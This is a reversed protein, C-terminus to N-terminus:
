NGERASVFPTPEVVQWRGHKLRVGLVIPGEGMWGRLNLALVATSAAAASDDVVLVVKQVFLSIDRQSLVVVVEKLAAAITSFSVPSDPLVSQCSIPVWVRRVETEDLSLFEAVIRQLDRDGEFPPCEGEIRIVTADLICLHEADLPVGASERVLVADVAQCYAEWLQDCVTAHGNTPQPHKFHFASCFCLRGFSELYVRGGGKYYVGKVLEGTISGQLHNYDIARAIVAHAIQDQYVQPISDVITALRLAICQMITDRISGYREVLSMGSGEGARWLTGIADHESELLLTFASDNLTTM